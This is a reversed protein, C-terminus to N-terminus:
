AEAALVERTAPSAECSGRPAADIKEALEAVTPSDFLEQLPLEIQFTGSVRSNVRTATLSHGGLEFFNDHVGVREVGLVERWIEALKTETPTHPASFPTGSGGNNFEPAPLAKRDVKGNPTLPLAALPVFVSPVMTEPLKEKLFKRFVEPQRSAGNKWVVYAALCDEGRANERPVVVAERVGPCTSLAAEIEGLEIRQGRLKVQHDLRGLFELQGDALWRVLDGTRYLRDESRAGFPNPIFKEATLEPRNRYGRALGAGGICLEGPVGVPVPQLGQDLIYVRTNAIPRGIPPPSAHGEIPPILTWTTVVTSETPGYHNSLACPLNKGPARHLRDGGTLLVRLACDDPWREELMAEAVPTPIFALTIKKEALWRLLAKPSRRTGEDPIHISAGCTLYPWLEWVSADFAPTAIQTARDNPTVAYARQHWAILNALSRHEIEVGKPQGTSGSTYIVYALSSSLQPNRTSARLPPSARRAADERKATTGSENQPGPTAELPRDVCLSKLNPIEFQLHARLSQQTLLVPMRADAMMFKLREVPHSPDLPVYAGGAKWVALKAAVMEASRELCVGVGVDPGVGLGRLEAALLDARENLGAYSLQTKGDEVALADPTRRAQEEFLQHICKDRPFEAATDNWKALLQARESETLMPLQGVRTEPNAAMSELLTKFHGLMRTIADDDFRNRHYLIKISLAPGGYADVALPYNSQSRIGFERKAWKGGQARLAADWSPDQYNFITEFLPQGRPVDSWSQINALPTHEFDRLARWAERLTQLWTVLTAQPAIRVRVPVTNILLGVIASAGPVNSGRGARVAGFVVDDERSYRSLLLAWAGQLLTNPTFGNQRAFSKLAATVSASLGIEQEGRIPGADQRPAHAIGLPTPATFGKLAQRWFREAPRWDQRRLWDIYERYPRPAPLELAEGRVSAEYFAFVENLVPVVGRGDLLLHHVTWLFQSASDGLHFLALRMPPAASLNFGRQRDAQLVAEFLKEQEAAPKRRWDEYKFEFAAQSCVEQWPESRETWHFTTRFIPHRNAVRQWAYEFARVDVHEPLRCFLQEIDVGTERASVNHFLMGQQMPSLSYSEEKLGVNIQQSRM